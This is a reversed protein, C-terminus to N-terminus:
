VSFRDLTAFGTRIPVPDASMTEPVLRVIEAMLIAYMQQGARCCIRKVVLATRKDM